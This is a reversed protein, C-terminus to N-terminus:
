RRLRDLLDDLQDLNRYHLTLSGGEGKQAVSVRLGLREGLELELALADEDKGAAARRRASHQERVVREVHRVSMGQAIVRDALGVPDLAPLLARAHGASLAGDDVLHLVSDPLSLLRLMNAIHPRSRGVVTSLRQQTCGFEELLRQYGEAEEVPSLNRRQVNEALAAEMATRDDLERVTVPVEALGARGAALWRREGAVIEYHGPTDAAPRALIPQLFGHERISAALANLAEEGFRRRPQFQGPELRDRPVMRVGEPPGGDPAPADPILASLGSGLRAPKDTSM